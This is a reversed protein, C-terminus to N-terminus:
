LRVVEGARLGCGYARSLLVRVKLNKVMALLRKAKRPSMLLTITQPERIHFIESSLDPRGQTVRFPFRLGTM